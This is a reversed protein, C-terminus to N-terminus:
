IYKKIADKNKEIFFEIMKSHLFDNTSKEINGMFCINGRRRLLIKACVIENPLETKNCLNDFFKRKVKNKCNFHSFIIKKLCATVRGYEEKTYYIKEFNKKNFDLVYNNFKLKLNNIFIIEDDNLTLELDNLIRLCKSARAYELFSM